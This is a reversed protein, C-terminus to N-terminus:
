FSPMCLCYKHPSYFSRKKVSIVTMRIVDKVSSPLLIGLDYRFASGITILSAIAIFLSWFGFDADSYHRTLLPMIAFTVVQAFGNALVMPAALRILNM